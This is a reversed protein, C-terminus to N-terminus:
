TFEGSIFTSISQDPLRLRVGGNQHLAEFHAEIVSHHNQFRVPDGRKLFSREQLSPFFPDFGHLFFERLMKVYMESMSSLLKKINWVCGTEVLLSTAPRDIQVLMKHQMNINIGIGCIVGRTNEEFITECLIGGLKKGNLMLDNPWKIHPFVGMNELAFAASLALLQPIYGLHTEECHTWFCYSAYINVGPPSMWKRNFRGRGGTQEDATILTVNKPSWEEFHAKAWNNTSDIQKFHIIKM